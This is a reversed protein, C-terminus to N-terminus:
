AARLTRVPNSSAARHAPLASAAMAMLIMVATSIVYIWPETANVDFLLAAVLHIAGLSGIIGLACGILAIRTGSGLILRAISSRQAGLAMRIAIEQSRLSVSFAMVAYIGMVALLLAAVAFTAILRTNFRRPAEVSSLAETMPRVPDLALQPDIAGVVSRLTAIMQEPPLTSRLAIFGSSNAHHGGSSGAINLIAPQALPFYFQDPAPQDPAGIRTDAVVGVVTAWPLPAHPNGLHFRKGIPNQGPWSHRAMSQNVVVVLPTDAQDHVTFARGAILPIGMARFYDGYTKVFPAFRMKWTAASTGEVTYDAEGSEGNAPLSSGLGVATVSPQSSLREVVERNFTAISVDTKYQSVPLEYGAVIYDIRFFDGEPV